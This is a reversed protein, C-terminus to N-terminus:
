AHIEEEDFVTIATPPIEIYCTSSAEVISHSLTIAEIVMNAVALEYYIVAGALRRRRIEAKFLNAATKQEVVFQIAEPRIHLIVRERTTNMAPAQLRIGGELAYERGNGNSSLIKAKLLNSRGIFNAVFLNAPHFYLEHALGLQQLNGQNLLAVRDALAFADQQDHTVFITTIKLQDILARLQETTQERLSIDLNSLPEDLLLVQPEIALARAIAVRQQQGGSLQDIRRTQYGCLQVLDLTQAVKEEILKRNKNRASLGFAINEAVSLHPFLAYNQFVMGMNRHEPSLKTIDKGALLIQGKDPTELGAILRLTTTKGCGSPGLLALCAGQAIALSLNNVAAVKGYSKNVNALELYTV